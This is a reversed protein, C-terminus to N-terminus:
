LRFIVEGLKIVNCMTQFNNLIDCKYKQIKANEVLKQRILISRYPVVTQFCVEPKGNQCTKQFGSTKKM